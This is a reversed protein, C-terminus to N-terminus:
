AEFHLQLSGIHFATLVMAFNVVAYPLGCFECLMRCPLRGRANPQVVVGGDTAFIQGDGSTYKDYAWAWGM